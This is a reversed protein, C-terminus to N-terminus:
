EDYRKPKNRRTTRKEPGVIAIPVAVIRARKKQPKNNPKDESDSAGSDSDNPTNETKGEAQDQNGIDCLCCM